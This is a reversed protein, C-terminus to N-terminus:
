LRASFWRCLSIDLRSWPTHKENGPRPVLISVHWRVNVCDCLQELLLLYAYPVPSPLVHIITGRSSTMVQFRKGCYQGKTYLTISEGWFPGFLAKINEKNITQVLSRAFLPTEPSKQRWSASIVIGTEELRLNQENRSFKKFNNVLSIGCEYYIVTATALM